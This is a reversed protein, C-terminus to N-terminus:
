EWAAGTAGRNTHDRWFRAAREVCCLVANGAASITQPVAIAGAGMGEAEADKRTIQNRGAHRKSESQSRSECRRNAAASCQATKERRGAGSAGSARNGTFGHHRHSAAGQE